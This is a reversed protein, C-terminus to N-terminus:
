TMSRSRSELDASDVDDRDRLEGQPGQMQEERSVGAPVDVCDDEVAEYIRGTGLSSLSHRRAQQCYPGSALSSADCSRLFTSGV